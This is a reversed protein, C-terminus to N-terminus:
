FHYIYQVGACQQVGINNEAVDVTPGWPRQQVDCLGIGQCPIPKHTIAGSLIRTGAQPGSACVGAYCSGCDNIKLPGMPQRGKRMFNL